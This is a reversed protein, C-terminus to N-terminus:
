ESTHITGGNQFSMIVTKLIDLTFYDVVKPVFFLSKSATNAPTRRRESQAELCAKKNM